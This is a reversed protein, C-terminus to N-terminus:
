QQCQENDNDTYQIRVKVLKIAQWNEGEEWKNNSGEQRIAQDVYRTVGTMTYQYIILSSKM